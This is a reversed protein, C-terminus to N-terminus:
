YWNYSRSHAWAGCPTGYSTAIYDLGWTMQTRPNTAWDEGASAMRAGPLAQPIGYASSSPNDATHKWGSEKTWLRDLCTFQEAGWGHDALMTRAVGRPDAVAAAVGADYAAKAQVAAAEAQRQVEAQWQAEAQRTAEAAALAVRQAEAAAEAHARAAAAADQAEGDPATPGLAARDQSRSTTGSTRDALLDGASTASSASSGASPAPAAEAGVAQTPGLGASSASLVVLVGGGVLVPRAVARALARWSSRHTM